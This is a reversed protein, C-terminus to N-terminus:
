SLAAEMPQINAELDDFLAEAPPGYCELQSEYDVDCAEYEDANEATVQITGSDLWGEVMPEGSELSQLIARTPGYGQLWPNQSLAGQLTGDRLGQFVEPGLDSAVGVFSGAGIEDQLKSLSPGDTACVGILGIADPNALQIAQWASFSSTPDSTTDFDGVVNIGPANEEMYNKVGVVRRDLVGVGPACNGVAVDGEADVGLFQIALEALGEGFLTENAGVYFPIQSEAAPVNFAAVPVGGAITDDVTGAWIEEPFPVVAIGQAGANVMDTFLQIQQQSDFQPPSATVVEAGFLEGAATAGDKNQEPAPGSYHVVIGVKLDGSAAADGSDDAADTEAPADSEAPADTEAPTDTEVAGEDPADTSPASDSDSDSGCAAGVISLAVLGAILAAGRPRHSHSSNIM